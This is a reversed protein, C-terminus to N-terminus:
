IPVYGLWFLTDVVGCYRNGFPQLRRRRAKGVAPPHLQTNAPRRNRKNNAANQLITVDRQWM